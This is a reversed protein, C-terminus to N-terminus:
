FPSNMTLRSGFEGADRECTLSPSIITPNLPLGTFVSESNNLSNVLFSIRVITSMETTRCVSKNFKPINGTRLAAHGKRYIKVSRQADKNGQPSLGDITFFHAQKRNMRM